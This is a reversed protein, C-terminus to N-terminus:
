SQMIKKLRKQLEADTKLAMSLQQYREMSLDSESLITQMKKQLKPQLKELKMVVAKHKKDEASTTEVDKKPDISAQQIENFRQLELGENKIVDMMEQQAQQNTMRMKQFAEAFKELEADKVEIKEQQQPLQSNQAQLTTGTIALMLFLSSFVNKLKM